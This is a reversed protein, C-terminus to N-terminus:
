VFVLCCVGAGTCFGAAVSEINLRLRVFNSLSVLVPVGEINWATQNLRQCLCKNVEKLDSVRPTDSDHLQDIYM